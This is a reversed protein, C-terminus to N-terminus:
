QMQVVAARKVAIKGSMSRSFHESIAHKNGPFIEIKEVTCVLPDIFICLKDINSM